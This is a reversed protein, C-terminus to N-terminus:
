SYISLSFFLGFTITSVVDFREPLISSANMSRASMFRYM